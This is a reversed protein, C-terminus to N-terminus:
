IKSNRIKNRRERQALTKASVAGDLPKRGGRKGASRSAATRTLFTVIIATAADLLAPTFERKGNMVAGVFEAGLAEIEADIPPESEGVYRVVYGKLLGHENKRLVQAAHWRYQNRAMRLSPKAGDDAADIAGQMDWDAFPVGFRAAIEAQVEEIMAVEDATAKRIKIAQM